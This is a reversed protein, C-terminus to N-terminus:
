RRQRAAEAAHVSQEFSRQPQRQSQMRQGEEQQVALQAQKQQAEIEPTVTVPGIESEGCGVAALMLVVALCNRRLM